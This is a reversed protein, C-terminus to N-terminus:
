AREPLAEEAPDVGLRRAMLISERAGKLDGLIKQVRGLELWGDPLTPWNKTLDKLYLASTEPDDRERMGQAAHFLAGANSPDINLVRQCWELCDDTITDEHLAAETVQHCTHLWLDFSNARMAEEAVQRFGSLFHPALRTQLNLFCEGVEYVAIPVVIGKMPVLRRPMFLLNRLKRNIRKFAPDTVMVRFRDGERSASETRKAVNIAFGSRDFGTATRTAWILGANIGAALESCSLGAELRGRNVPLGVWGCKLTVALCILQYVDNAPKNTHLFVVMEDGVVKVEYDLGNPAYLGKHVGDFFFRCQEYCLQHFEGVYEAYERLGMVSAFDSSSVLDVFLTATDLPGSQGVTWETKPPHASSETM